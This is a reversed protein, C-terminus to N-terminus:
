AELERELEPKTITFSLINLLFNCPYVVCCDVVNPVSAVCFTFVVANELAFFIIFIWSMLIVSMTGTLRATPVLDAILRYGM